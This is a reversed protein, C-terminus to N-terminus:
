VQTIIVSIVIKIKWTVNDDYDESFNCLRCRNLIIGFIWLLQRVDRPGVVVVHFYRANSEDPTAEIGPVPEAKLRQTEQWVLLDCVFQKALTLVIGLQAGLVWYKPM